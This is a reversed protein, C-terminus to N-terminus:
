PSYSYPVVHPPSSMGSLYSRERWQLIRKICRQFSSDHHIPPPIQDNDSDMDSSCYSVDDNDDADMECDSLEDDDEDDDESGASSSFYSTSQIVSSLRRPTPPAVEVLEIVPLCYQQHRMYLSPCADKLVLPEYSPTPLLVPAVDLMATPLPHSRPKLSTTYTDNFPNRM